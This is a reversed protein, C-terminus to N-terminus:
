IALLSARREESGDPNRWSWKANFTIGTDFSIAAHLPCRGGPSLEPIPIKRDYDGKVLPSSRGAEPALEFQVDKAAVPGWNTIIFKFDRGNQELDIRVDAKEQPLHASAEGRRLAELQLDILEEQKAQLKMQQRQVKSTRHLSLFAITVALIAIAATVIQQLSFPELL